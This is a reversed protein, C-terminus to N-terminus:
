GPALSGLNWTIVGGSVFAPHGSSDTVYTTSLPLTDTLIAVGAGDGQNWYRIGFIVPGGPAAEGGGEPWKEVRLNPAPEHFVNIVRDRDPEIYMVAVNQGPLIDWETVPNWKCSYPASGDPAATSNKGPAGGPAGWAHCEVDLTQTFWTAYINGGVSDNGVNM